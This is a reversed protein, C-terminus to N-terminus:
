KIKKITSDLQGNNPHAVYHTIKGNADKAFTLTGPTETYFFDTESLPFLQRTSDASQIMLKDGDRSVKYIGGNPSEYEGIYADYIKPDLKVAVRVPPPISTHTAVAALYGNRRVYVETFRRRFTPVFKGDRERRFTFLYSAVISDGYQNVKLEDVSFDYKVNKMPASQAFKVSPEKGEVNGYPDTLIYTDALLRNVAAVDGSMEAATADAIFKRVELELKASDTNSKEGIQAKAKPAICIIIALLAISFILNKM